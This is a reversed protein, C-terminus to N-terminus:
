RYEVLKNDEFCLWNKTDSIVSGANMQDTCNGKSGQRFDSMSNGSIFLHLRKTQLRFHFFSSFFNEALVTALKSHTLSNLLANSPIHEIREFIPTDDLMHTSTDISQDVQRRDAIGIQHRDAKAEWVGNDTEDRCQCIMIDRSLDRM